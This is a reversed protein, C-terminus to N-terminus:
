NKLLEEAATKKLHSKANRIDDKGKKKNNMM